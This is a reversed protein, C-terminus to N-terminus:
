GPIGAVGESALSTIPPAGQDAVGGGQVFSALIVPSATWLMSTANKEATMLSNLCLVESWSSM